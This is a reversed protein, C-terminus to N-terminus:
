IECWTAVWGSFFYGSLTSHTPESRHQCSMVVTNCGAGLSALGCREM